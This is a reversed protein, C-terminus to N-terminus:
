IGFVKELCQLRHQIQEHPTIPNNIIDIVIYDEILSCKDTLGVFTFMIKDYENNNKIKNLVEAKCISFTVCQYCPTDKETIPKM